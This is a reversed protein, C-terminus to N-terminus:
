TIKTVLVEGRKIQEIEIDSIQNGFVLEILGNDLRHNRASITKDYEYFWFCWASEDDDVYKSLEENLVLTTGYFKKIYFTCGDNYTFLKEM